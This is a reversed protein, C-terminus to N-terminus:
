YIKDYDLLCLSPLLFNAGTWDQLSFMRLMVISTDYESGLSRLTAEDLSFRSIQLFFPRTHQLINRVDDLSFMIGSLRLDSLLPRSRAMMVAHKASLNARNLSLTELKELQMIVIVLNDPSLNQCDHLILTHISVLPRLLLFSM